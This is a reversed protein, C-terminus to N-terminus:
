LEIAAQRHLAALLATTSAGRCDVISQAGAQRAMEAVRPSPVFLTLKALDPWAAGALERLHLFGQGSSVVLANLHEEVVRQALAGSPYSPLVRRYLPLYDVQAGSDRLREALLERGDEGRVLLVKVPQAQELLQQMPALALLAESDDGQAPYDVHRAFGQLVQATAGGVTFWRLSAPPQRQLNQLQSILLRAAPKSVVIVADYREIHEILSLQGPNLRLAETALLPMCSSYVGHPALSAALETCDQAPRTLLLRWRKM